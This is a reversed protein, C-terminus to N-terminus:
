IYAWCKGIGLLCVFFSKRVYSLHRGNQNEVLHGGLKEIESQSRPKAVKQVIKEYLIEETEEEVVKNKDHITSWLSVTSYGSDVSYSRSAETRYCIRHMDAAGKSVSRLDPLEAIEDFQEESKHSAMSDTRSISSGEDFASDTSSQERIKPRRRNEYFKEYECYEHFAPSLQYIGGFERPKFYPKQATSSTEPMNADNKCNISPLLNNSSSIVKLIEDSSYFRNSM